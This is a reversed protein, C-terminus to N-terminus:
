EGTRLSNASSRSAREIHEQAAVRPMAANASKRSHNEALRTALEVDGQAIADIMEAHERWLRLRMASHSMVMGLVEAFEARHLRASAVLLPNGSAAHLAEHFDMDAQVMAPLDGRQVAEVGREIFDVPIKACRQAALGAALGNLASRLESAHKLLSAREGMVGGFGQSADRESSYNETVV